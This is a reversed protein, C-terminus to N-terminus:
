IRVDQKNPIIITSGIDLDFNNLINNIDAIVFWLQSDSLYKNAIIPLTDGQTVTHIKERGTYVHKYKFKDLTDGDKYHTILGNTYLNM